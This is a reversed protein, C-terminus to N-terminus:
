YPNGPASLGGGVGSSFVYGSTDHEVPDVGGGGGGASALIHNSSDSRERYQHGASSSSSASANAAPAAGPVGAVEGAGTYVAGSRNQSEGRATQSQVFL